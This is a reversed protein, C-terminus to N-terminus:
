LRELNGHVIGRCCRLGWSPGTLMQKAQTRCARTTLWRFHTHALGAVSVVGWFFVITYPDTLCITVVFWSRWLPRSLPQLFTIRARCHLRGSLSLQHTWWYSKTYLTSHFNCNLLLPLTRNQDPGGSYVAGSLFCLSFRLILQPDAVCACSRCM